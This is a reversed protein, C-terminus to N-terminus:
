LQFRFNQPSNQVIYFKVSCLIIIHPKLISFFDNQPFIIIEPMIINNFTNQNSMTLKLHFNKRQEGHQALFNKMKM